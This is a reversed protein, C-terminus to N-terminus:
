KEEFMDGLKREGRKMCGQHSSVRESHSVNSSVPFVGHPVISGATAACVCLHAAASRDYAAKGVHPAAAVGAAGDCSTVHNFRVM